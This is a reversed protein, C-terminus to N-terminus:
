FIDGATEPNSLGIEEKWSLSNNVFVLKLDGM